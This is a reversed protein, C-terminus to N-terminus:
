SIKFNAEFVISLTIPLYIVDLHDQTQTVIEEQGSRLRELIVVDAGSIKL